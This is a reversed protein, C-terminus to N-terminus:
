VCTEGLTQGSKCTAQVAATPHFKFHNPACSLIVTEGSPIRIIPENNAANTETSRLIGNTTYVLPAFFSLRPLPLFCYGEITDTYAFSSLLSSPRQMGINEKAYRLLIFLNNKQRALCCLTSPSYDLTNYATNKGNRLLSM